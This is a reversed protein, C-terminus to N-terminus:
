PLSINVRYVRHAPAANTDSLIQNGGIGPIDVEPPLNSWIGNVADEAIELSYLRGTLSNFSVDVGGGASVFEILFTSNSDMPDTGAAFEQLNSLGDLDSDDGPQASTEDGFHLLEWADPLGDNDDDPDCVDGAGDMDLDAQDVNSDDPCNDDADPVGDGDSDPAKLAFIQGVNPAGPTAQGVDDTWSFTDFSAGPGGTLYLSSDGSASDSLHIVQDETSNVNDGDYDLLHVTLLGTKKRVLMSDGPGNQIEGITWSAPTWDAADSLSPPVIGIVFFGCGNTEDTFTFSADALDYTPGWQVFNQNYILLEYDDLSLGAPGALEIWENSDTGPNNYDFENIWPDASPDPCNIHDGPTSSGLAPNTINWEFSRWNCSPSLINLNRNVAADAYAWLVNFDGSGTVEGVSGYTDVPDGGTTYLAYVDNGNGTIGGASVADPPFGYASSFAASSNAITFTECPQIMGSLAISTWNTDGDDYRRLEYGSLDVAAIAQNYLEVFRVSSVPDDTVESLLPGSVGNSCVLFGEEMQIDAFVLLHDTAATSTGTPLPSGVKPLGGVGDDRASNYIEGAPSGLSSNLIADSVFIYDIESGSGPFTADISSDEQFVTLATVGAPAYRDHPFDSYDVPFTVDNGLDFCNPGGSPESFFQFTQTQGPDDNFDGLVVIHDDGPNAAQFAQVDEVIRRAEIARRFEDIGSSTGAKHHMTYLVLRSLAGPVSIVARIPARTFEGAGPPSTVDSTSDIPFRSMIAQRLDGFCDGNGSVATHGYGLETALANFDAIDGSGVEQFGIVDPDTRVLIDRVANYTTSGPSGVGGDDFFLVNYTAVRVEVAIACQVPLFIALFSLFVRLNKVFRM